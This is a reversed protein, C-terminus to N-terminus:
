KGVEPNFDINRLALSINRSDAQLTKKDVPTRIVIRSYEGKANPSINLSINQWEVGVKIPKSYSAGDILVEVDTVSISRVTLSLLGPPAYFSLETECWAFIGQADKEPPYFGVPFDCDYGRETSSMYNYLNKLVGSELGAQPLFEVERVAVSIDRGDSQRTETDAKTRIEIRSYEGQTNPSINLSINQWEVGVKIPKLYSAGDIFVEVDTVSISRVTLSLLGPPAYFSLETECWAFIGQADKEPPYFGVPFDCDYGRETSSMYNYLNKLVGSELGAQPLFEVERIAVGLNRGLPQRTKDDMQVRIEIRSYAGKANSNINISVSEWDVGVQIPRLYSAGDILIEINATCFSRMRLILLGPSSSICITKKGWAFMGQDDREIPYFDLQDDNVDEDATVLARKYVKSLKTVADQWNFNSKVCLALLGDKPSKIANILGRYISSVSYHDVYEAGEGFYERTSGESTIVIKAGVAAAELAALGPTELTSPLAFVECALFASKLLPSDHPLSGLYLVQDGGEELCQQAYESDRKHGILILKIEPIEKMARILNLQNKRPEINAVNLVFPMDINFYERFTNEDTAGFFSDDVGNYVTEFKSPDLKFVESLVECEAYSNCIVRDAIYLQHKIDNYPYNDKTYETIWLNPSVVLPLGMNKIFGCFPNSGSLCGFFHVINYNLFEPSWLNMLDVDVENNKLYKQYELLQIEGGGPTHFAM